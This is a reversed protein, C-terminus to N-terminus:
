LTSWIDNKGLGYDDGGLVWIKNNFYICGFFQRGSWGANGTAQIWTIGDESYWVDNKGSGGLTWIKNGAVISRQGDRGSWGPNSTAQVWVKGDTSYWVDKKNDYGCIKYIKNDFVVCSHYKYTSSGTSSSEQTWTVGDSSSWADKAIIWMKDNFVVSAHGYRADWPAASTVQTWTVGDSSSWVDNYKKFSNDSYCGGFVWMKDNFVVASYADRPAFPASSIAQVWNSGDSSYWIDNAYEPNDNKEGPLIWIKDKFILATFYGRKDWPSDSNILGWASGDIDAQSKIISFNNNSNAFVSNDSNDYIRIQYDDGAEQTEPISWTYSGAGSNGALVIVNLSNLQGNKYLKINVEGINGEYTWKIDYSTGANLSEGGNPSLLVIKKAVTNEPNSANNEDKNCSSFPILLVIVLFIFYNKKM